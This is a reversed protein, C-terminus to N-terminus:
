VRQRPQPLEQAFFFALMFRPVVRVAVFCGVFAVGLQWWVDGFGGLFWQSRCSEM